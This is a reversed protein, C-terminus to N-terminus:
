QENHLRLIESIRVCTSIGTTLVINIESVCCQTVEVFPMHIEFCYAFESM